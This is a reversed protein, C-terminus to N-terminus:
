PEVKLVEVKLVDGPEAGQIKVPGTVIHPGDKDFDHELKSKTIIKAEDLILKENVGNSSFYKEADRGQDELLGEHPVTDFIVISGSPASLIPKADKNPLYGWTITELTSPVYYYNNYKGGHILIPKNSIQRLM